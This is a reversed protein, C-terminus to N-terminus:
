LNDKGLNLEEPPALLRVRADTIVVQGRHVDRFWGKIDPFVFRGEATFEHTTYVPARMWGRKILWHLWRLHSVKWHDWWTAPWSLRERYTQRGSGLICSRLEFVLGRGLLDLQDRLRVETMVLEHQSLEQAVSFRVVELCQERLLVPDLEAKV